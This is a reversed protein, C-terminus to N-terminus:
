QLYIKSTSFMTISSVKNQVNYVQYLKTANYNHLYLLWFCIERSLLFRGWLFEGRQSQLCWSSVIFICLKYLPVINNPQIGSKILIDPVQCIELHNQRTLIFELTELQPHFHDHDFLEIFNLIPVPTPPTHIITKPKSSILRSTKNSM